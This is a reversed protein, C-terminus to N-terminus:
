CRRVPRWRWWQRSRPGRRRKRPRWCQQRSLKRERTSAAHAGTAAAPRQWASIRRGLRSRRRMLASAIMPRSPRAAQADEADDAADEVHGCSGRPFRECSFFFAVCSHENTSMGAQRRARVCALLVGSDRAVRLYAARISPGLVWFVMKQTRCVCERVHVSDRLADMM